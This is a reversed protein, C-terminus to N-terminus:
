IELYSIRVGRIKSAFTLKLSTLVIWDICKCHGRSCWLRNCLYLSAVIFCKVEIVVTIFIIPYFIGSVTVCFLLAVSTNLAWCVVQFHHFHHPLMYNSLSVSMFRGVSPYWLVTSCLVKFSRLSLKSNVWRFFTVEFQMPLLGVRGLLPSRTVSVCLVASCRFSLCFRCRARKLSPDFGWGRVRCLRSWRSLERRSQEKLAHVNSQLILLFSTMQKIM